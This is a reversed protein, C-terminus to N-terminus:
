GGGSLGRDARSQYEEDTVHAYWEATTGALDEQIALHTMGTTPAAGHWHREGPAFWVVDGPGVEEIPGGAAQVWGRGELIVLIQGLPHAHWATRAGPEFTVRAVHVRAPPAADYLREVTVQGTFTESPGTYSARSGAREIKM